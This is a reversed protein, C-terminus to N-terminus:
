LVFELKNATVIVKLLPDKDPLAYILKELGEYDELSYYCEALKSLNRGQMYYTLAQARTVVEIL